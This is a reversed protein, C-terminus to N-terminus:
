VTHILRGWCLEAQKREWRRLSLITHRWKRHVMRVQKRVSAVGSINRKIRRPERRWATGELWKGNEAQRAISHQHDHFQQKQPPRRPAQQTTMTANFSKKGSDRGKGTSRNATIM